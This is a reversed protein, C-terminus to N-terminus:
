TPPAEDAPTFCGKERLRHRYETPSCSCYHRFVVAYYNSSVFGFRLAIDSITVGEEALLAKSAEIKRRIIYERPTYGIQEKFKEKFRSPSLGCLSALGPIELDEELHTRIHDVAMGIDETIRPHAEGSQLLGCLFRLFAAQGALRDLFDGGAILFFARKLERIASQGVQTLRTDYKSLATYLIRNWPEALGLFDSPMEEMLIQFWLFESVEQPSDACDHPEDAHTFFVNGGHIQYTKGDVTYKQSGSIMVTFEIKHHHYHPKLPLFVKRFTAYGFTSLARIGHTGETLIKHTDNWTDLCISDYM